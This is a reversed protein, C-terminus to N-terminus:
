NEVAMRDDGGGKVAMFMIESPSVNIVGPNGTHGMLELLKMCAWRAGARIVAVKFGQPYIIHGHCASLPKGTNVNVSSIEGHIEIM